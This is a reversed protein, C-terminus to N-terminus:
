ATEKILDHIKEYFEGPPEKGLIQTHSNGLHEKNFIKKLAKIPFEDDHGKKIISRRICPDYELTDGCIAFGCFCSLLANSGDFKLTGDSNVTIIKKEIAKDFMKQARDSYIKDPLRFSKDISEKNNNLNYIPNLSMRKLGNYMSSISAIKFNIEKAIFHIMKLILDADDPSIVGIASLSNLGNKYKNDTYFLVEKSFKKLDSINSTIPSFTIRTIELYENIQDVGPCNEWLEYELDKLSISKNQLVEWVSDYYDGGTYQNALYLDTYVDDMDKGEIDINYAPLIRYWLFSKLRTLKKVLERKPFLVELANDETMFISKEDLALLYEKAAQGKDESNKLADIESTSLKLLDPISNITVMADYLVSACIDTKEMPKM